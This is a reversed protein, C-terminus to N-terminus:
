LRIQWLDFVPGEKCVRRFPEAEDDTEIVCGFCLGLGCAMREEVLAQCPVRDNEILAKLGKLMLGPGCTFIEINGKMTQLHAGLLAVVDGKYGYSGNMTSIYPNLHELDEILTMEEKSSCGFFLTAKENLRKILSHVGAIGIGGAVVVYRDRKEVHFGKGLPGLVFVIENGQSSSLRETGKGVVKYMITLDRGECHYIGFPRRLFVEGGPIRLMVFQGPVAREMPKSLKITLLYYNPIILKNSSIRGEIDDM